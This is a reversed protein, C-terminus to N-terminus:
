EQENVPFRSSFFRKGTPRSNSNTVNGSAKSWVEDQEPAKGQLHSLRMIKAM